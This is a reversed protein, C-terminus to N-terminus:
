ILPKPARRDSLNLRFTFLHPPGAWLLPKCEDLKLEVEATKTM